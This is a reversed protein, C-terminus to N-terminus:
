NPIVRYFASQNTTEIEWISNTSFPASVTEWDNSALNATGQLVYNTTAVANFDAAIYAMDNSLSFTLALENNGYWEVVEGFLVLDNGTLNRIRTTGSGSTSNWGYLRFSVTGTLNQYKADSLDIPAGFGSGDTDMGGSENADSTTAIEQGAFFGDISTMFVVNSCATGSGGGNMEISSLNLAKGEEIVLTIDIYQNLSISGSLSNTQSASPIKFGYQSSSTSPIVGNGLSLESQVFGTESTTAQFVFPSLNTEIGIGDDLDVGDVDWGAVMAAFTGSFPVSMMLM